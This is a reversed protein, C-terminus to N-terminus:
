FRHEVNDSELVPLKAIVGKAGVLVSSTGKYEDKLVIIGENPELTRIGVNDIYCNFGGPFTASMFGLYNDGEFKSPTTFVYSVTKYGSNIDYTKEGDLSTLTYTSANTYVSVVNSIVTTM